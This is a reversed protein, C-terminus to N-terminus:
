PCRFYGQYSANLGQSTGDLVKNVSAEIQSRTPKSGRDAAVKLWGVASLFGETAYKTETGYPKDAAWHALEEPKSINDKWPLFESISKSLSGTRRTHSVTLSDQIIHSGHGAFYNFWYDQRYYDIAKVAATIIARRAAACATRTSEGPRRMSHWALVESPTSKGFGKAMGTLTKCKSPTKCDTDINGDIASPSYFLARGVSPSGIFRKNTSTVAGNMWPQHCLTTICGQDSRLEEEMQELDESGEDWEDWQIDIEGTTSWDLGEDLGCASLACGISFLMTLLRITKM